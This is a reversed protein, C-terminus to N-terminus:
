VAIMRVWRIVYGLDLDLVLRKARTKHSRQANGGMDSVKSSHNVADRPSCQILVIIILFSNMRRRKCKLKSMPWVPVSAPGPMRPSIM